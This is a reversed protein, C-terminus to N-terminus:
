LGNEQSHYDSIGGLFFQQLKEPPHYVHFQKVWVLSICRSSTSYFFCMRESFEWKQETVELVRVQCRVFM